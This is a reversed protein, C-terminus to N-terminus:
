RALAYACPCRYALGGGRQTLHERFDSLNGLHRPLDTPGVVKQSRDAQCEIGDVPVSDPSQALPPTSPDKRDQFRIRELGLTNGCLGTPRRRQAVGFCGARPWATPRIGSLCRASPRPRRDGAYELPVFLRLGAPPQPVGPRDKVADAGSGDGGVRQNGIVGERSSKRPSCAGGLSDAWTSASRTSARWAVMKQSGGPAAFLRIAWCTAAAVFRLHTSRPASRSSGTSGRPMGWCSVAARVRQGGDAKRGGDSSGPRQSMLRSSSGDATGM